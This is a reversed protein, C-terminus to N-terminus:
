RASSAFLPLVYTIKHEDAVTTSFSGEERIRRCCKLVVRGGKDQSLV